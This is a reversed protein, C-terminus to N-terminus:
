EPWHHTQSCRGEPACSDARSRLRRRHLRRVSARAAFWNSRHPLRLVRACAVAYRLWSSTTGHMMCADKRRSAGHLVGEWGCVMRACALLGPAAPCQMQERVVCRPRRVTRMVGGGTPSRRRGVGGVAGRMGSCRVVVLVGLGAAGCCEGGSCAVPWCGVCGCTACGECSACVPWTCTPPPRASCQRRWIVVCVRIAGHALDSACPQEESVLRGGHPAGRALIWSVHPRTPHHHPRRKCM